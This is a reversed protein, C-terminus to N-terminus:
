FTIKRCGTLLVLGTGLLWAAGPLPIPSVEISNIKYVECEKSSSSNYNKCFLQQYNGTLLLLNGTGSLLHTFPSFGSSASSFIDDNIGAIQSLTNFTEVTFDPLTSVLGTWYSIDRDNPDSGPGNYPDVTISEFNVVQDFEFVLLDDRNVTDIEHENVNCGGYASGEHRNCIGLGSSWSFVEATEFLYYNSHPPHEPGTEGYASVSVSIGSQTFTLNNGFGGGNGGAGTLDFTAAAAYNSILSLLLISIYHEVSM